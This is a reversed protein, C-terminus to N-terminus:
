IEVDAEAIEIGDGELGRRDNVAYRVAVPQNMICRWRRSESHSGGECIHLFEGGVGAAVRPSGHRSNHIGKVAVRRNVPRILGRQKPEANKVAAFIRHSAFVFGAVREGIIIGAPQM